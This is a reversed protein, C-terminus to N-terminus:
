SALTLLAEMTHAQNPALTIADAGTNATEICCFREWGAPELDPFTVAASPNWIVTTASNTKINTVAPKGPIQLVCPATHGPFVSDTRATFKLPADPLRKRAGDATKDLYEAGEVGLISVTHVDPVQLYTHLAEEFHLPHEGLNAVSLRLKLTRGIVLDYAVRFHDFGLSRSLGTPGLTLTLHVSDGAVEDPMLAAFALEWPQIRAFGHGPGPGGDSRPGFWPFCIPIGGRIPKDASFDSTASMFLVPDHGAPQWHTLHAGHLYVTATAASTTVQARPLGNHEDFTLVGPLGFHDNLQAIDM